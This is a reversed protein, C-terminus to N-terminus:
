LNYKNVDNKLLQTEIEKTTALRMENKLLSCTGNILYFNELQPDIDYRVTAFSSYDEIETIQGVTHELFHKIDPRLTIYECIIYDGVKFDFIKNTNMEFSKLYKM